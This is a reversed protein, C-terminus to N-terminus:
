RKGTRMSKNLINIARQDSFALHSKYETLFCRDEAMVVSKAIANIFASSVPAGKLNLSKVDVECVYSIHHFSANM